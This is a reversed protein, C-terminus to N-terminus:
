PIAQEILGGWHPWLWRQQHEGDSLQVTAPPMVEGSPLVIFDPTAPDTRDTAADIISLQLPAQLSLAALSLLPQWQSDAWVLATLTHDGFKIGLTNGSLIAESGAQDLWDEVQGSSTRFRQEAGRGFGVTTVGALLALIVVVVLLEVLTFGAQGQRSGMM